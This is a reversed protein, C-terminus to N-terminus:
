DGGTLSLFRLIGAAEQRGAETKGREKRRAKREGAAVRASRARSRVKKRCFLPAQARNERTGGQRKKAGKAGKQGEREPRGRGGDEHSLIDAGAEGKREQGESGAAERGEPGGKIVAYQGTEQAAKDGARGPGGKERTKEGALLEAKGPMDPSLAGEAAQIGEGGQWAVGGPNKGQPRNERSFKWRMARRQGAARARRYVGGGGPGSGEKGYEGCAGYEGYVESAGNAGYERHAECEGFAGNAGNDGSAEYAGYEGNGGFEGYAGYEAGAGRASSPSSPSSFPSLASRCPGAKRLVPQGNRGTSRAYHDPYKNIRKKFSSSSSSSNIYIYNILLPQERAAAAAARAGADQAAWAPFTGRSTRTIDANIGGGPEEQGRASEPGAFQDQEPGGQGTSAAARNEQGRNVAYERALTIIAGECQLFGGKELEGLAKKVLCPKARLDRALGEPWERLVRGNKLNPHSQVLLLLFLARASLADAHPLPM